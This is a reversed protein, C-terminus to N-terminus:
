NKQLNIHLTTETKKTGLEWNQAESHIDQRQKLGMGIDPYAHFEGSGGERQKNTKETGKKQRESNRSLDPSICDASNRNPRPHHPPAPKHAQGGERWLGGGRKRLRSNGSIM